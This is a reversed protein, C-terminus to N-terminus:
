WTFERKQGKLNTARSLASINVHKVRSDQVCHTVTLYSVEDKSFQDGVNMLLDKVSCVRVVMCDRDIVTVRCHCSFSFNACRNVADRRVSSLLFQFFTVIVLLVDGLHWHEALLIIKRILITWEIARALTYSAMVIVCSPERKRKLLVKESIRWGVYMSKWM